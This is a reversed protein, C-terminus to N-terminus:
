VEVDPGTCSSYDNKPDIEELAATAIDRLGQVTYQTLCHEPDRIAKLAEILRSPHPPPTNKRSARIKDQMWVPCFKEAEDLLDRLHQRDKAALERFMTGIEHDWMAAGKPSEPCVVRCFALFRDRQEKTQYFMATLENVRAELRLQERIGLAMQKLDTGTEHSNIIGTCCYWLEKRDDYLGHPCPDVPRTPMNHPDCGCENVIKGEHGCRPCKTM